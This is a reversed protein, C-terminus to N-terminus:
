GFAYWEYTTNANHGYGSTRRFAVYTSTLKIYDNTSTTWTGNNIAPGGFGGSTTIRGTQRRHKDPIDGNGEVCVYSCYCWVGDTETGAIMASAVAEVSEPQMMCFFLKPTFGIDELTAIVSDGNNHLRTSFTVTGTSFHAYRGYTSSGGTPIAMIAQAMEGITYTDSSGNKARIADAIAQVDTDSYLKMAM